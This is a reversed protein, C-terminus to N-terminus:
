NPAVANTIGIFDVIEGTINFHHRMNCRKRQYDYEM